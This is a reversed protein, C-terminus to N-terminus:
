KLYYKTGNKTQNKNSAGTQVSGKQQGFRLSNFRETDKRSNLFAQFYDYAFRM